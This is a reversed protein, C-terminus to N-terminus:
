IGVLRKNLRNQLRRRLHSQIRESITLADRNLNKLREQMEENDPHFNPNDYLQTMHFQYGSADKSFESLNRM